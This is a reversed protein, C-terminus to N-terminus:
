MQSSALDLRSWRFDSPARSRDADQRCLSALNRPLDEVKLKAFGVGGKESNFAITIGDSEIKRLSANPYHKGSRTAIDGLTKARTAMALILNREAAQAGTSAAQTYWHIAKELDRQVGLGKAYMTALENQALPDGQQAAKTLWDLALEPSPLVEIGRAYLIGLATQAKAHGALAAKRMWDMGTLFQDRSSTRTFSRRGLLYQAELDGAAARQQLCRGRQGWSILGGAIAVGTMIVVLAVAIRKFSIQRSPSRNVPKSEARVVTSARSAWWATIRRTKM